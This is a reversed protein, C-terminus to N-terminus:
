RVRAEFAKRKNCWSVGILHEGRSAERKILLLNIEAPIFICTNESYVKNGKILLDKDLEFGKVGFGVQRHGNM